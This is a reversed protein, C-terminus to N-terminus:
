GNETSNSVSVSRYAISDTSDKRKCAAQQEQTCLAYFRSFMTSTCIITILPGSWNMIIGKQSFTTWKERIRAESPLKTNEAAGLRL